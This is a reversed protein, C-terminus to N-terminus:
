DKKPLYRNQARNPKHIADVRGIVFDYPMSDQTVTSNACIYTNSAINLPAILVSNSGVFVNDGITITNKSIGNYNAFVVGCGINCYEGIVSDGVYTHHAIKTHKGITSNKIECFNGIRCNDMITSNKHIHAFPGINCLSGISSKQIISSAVQSSAGISSNSIYNYPLLKANDSIICNDIIHNPTSITCNSGIECSDDTTFILSNQSM